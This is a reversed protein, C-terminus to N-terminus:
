FFFFFVYNGLWEHLHNFWNSRAVEVPPDLYIVQNRIRVEHISVELDPKEAARLVSQKGRNIGFENKITFKRTQKAIKGSSSLTSSDQNNSSNNGAFMFENTWAVIPKELRQALVM